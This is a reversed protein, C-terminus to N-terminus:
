GAGGTTTRGETAGDTTTKEEPDGFSLCGSETGAACFERAIAEFLDVSQHLAAISVWEDAAHTRHSVGAGAAAALLIAVPLAGDSGDTHAAVIVATLGIVAGVSLDIGAVLLVLTQGLATIGILGIQFLILRLNSSEFLSPSTIAAAILVIVLGALPAVRARFDSALAGARNM